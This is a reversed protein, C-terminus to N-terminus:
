LERSNLDGVLEPPQHSCLADRQGPVSPDRFPTLVELRTWLKHIYAIPKEM